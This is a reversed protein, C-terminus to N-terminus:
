KPASHYRHTLKRQRGLEKPNMNELDQCILKYHISSLRDVLHNLIQHQQMELCQSRLESEISGQDLILRDKWQVRFGNNIRGLSNYPQLDKFNRPDSLQTMHQISGQAPHQIM